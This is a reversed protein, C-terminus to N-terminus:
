DVVLLHEDVHAIPVEVAADPELGGTPDPDPLDLEVVDGAQVRTTRVTVPRGSLLVEGAALLASAEARSGGAVMSVVRDIREGALADPVEERV